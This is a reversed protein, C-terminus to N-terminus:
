LRQFGLGLKATGGDSVAMGTKLDEPLVTVSNGDDAAKSTANLKYAKANTTILLFPM